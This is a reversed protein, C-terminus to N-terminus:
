KRGIFKVTLMEKDTTLKAIFLESAYPAMNVNSTFYGNYIPAESQYLLAGSVNFIQLLGKKGKLLQANIFATQWDSNYYVFLKPTILAEEAIGVTLSDCGGGVWPGLEYNPNNPLGVYTRHGGLSFSFPQFDCAAGLSDPANIVSLNSNVTNWTTDCYLYDFACDGGNWMSSVYIKNDPGMQICGLEDPVISTRLTDASALFNPANLDYQVLYSKYPFAGQLISTTYMKSGDPSIALSWYTKYNGSTTAPSLQAVNSLLGSCRDFSYREILNDGACSYLLQGDKTFENRQFSGSNSPFGINQHFPGSIGAPSVLYLYFDNMASAPDWSKCLLWWDRGNGHKVAALADSIRFNLLQVNKQLVYGSGNNLSMDVVNYYLGQNNSSSTVGATFVYFQQLNGPKPLILMEQYWLASVLSDGNSIKHHQKNVLYGYNYTYPPNPPIWIDINPSGGYFILNGVSDCISACTGRARLISEGAIPNNLNIFDIGASDGFCWYRDTFQANATLGFINLLLIFFPLKCRM